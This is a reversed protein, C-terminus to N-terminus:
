GLEIGRMSGYAICVQRLEDMSNAIADWVVEFNTGPYDHALRNRMGRMKDWPADFFTGKTRDTLAAAEELIRYLQFTLGEVITEEVPNQPHIFREETMESAAIREELQNINDWIEQIRSDDNQRASM